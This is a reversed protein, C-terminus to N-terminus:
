TPYRYRYRYRPTSTLQCREKNPKYEESVIEVVRAPEEGDQGLNNYLLRAECRDEIRVEKTHVRKESTRREVLGPLSQLLGEGNTDLVANLEPRSDGREAKHVHRCLEPIYEGPTNRDAPLGIQAPQVLLSRLLNRSSLRKSRCLPRTSTCKM